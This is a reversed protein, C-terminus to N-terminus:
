LMATLSINPIIETKKFKNLSAKHSCMHDTRAFTGRASSFFPYESIRPLFARYIDTVDM